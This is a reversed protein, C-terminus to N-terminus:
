LAETQTDETLLRTIFSGQGLHGLSYLWNKRILIASSTRVTNSRRSGLNRLFLTLLIECTRAQSRECMNLERTFLCGPGELTCIIPM